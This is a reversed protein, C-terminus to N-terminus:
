VGFGVKLGEKFEERTLSMSNDADWTKFLDVIRMRQSEMYTVVIMLPNEDSIEVISWHYSTQSLESYVM